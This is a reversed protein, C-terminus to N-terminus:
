DKSMIYGVLIAVSGVFGWGVWQFEESIISNILIAISILLFVSGILLLVAGITRRKLQTVFIHVKKSVNDGIRELINTVFGQIVGKWDNQNEKNNKM